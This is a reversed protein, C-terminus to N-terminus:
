ELATFDPVDAANFEDFPVFKMGNPVGVRSIRIGKLCADCWADCYGVRDEPDAVYLYRIRGLGCLPCQAPMSYEGKIMRAFEVLFREREARM